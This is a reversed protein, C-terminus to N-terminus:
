LMPPTFLVVLSHLFGLSSAAVVVVLRSSILPLFPQQFSSHSLIRYLLGMSLFLDEAVPGPWPLMLLPLGPFLLRLMNVLKRTIKGVNECTGKDEPKWDICILM